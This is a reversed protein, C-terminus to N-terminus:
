HDTKLVDALAENLKRDYVVILKDRFKTLFVPMRGEMRQLTEALIIQYQHYSADPPTEEILKIAELEAPKDFYVVELIGHDTKIWSAKTPGIFGGNFKSLSVKQVTWGGDSLRQAFETAFTIQAPVLHSIDAGQGLARSYGAVLVVAAVIM